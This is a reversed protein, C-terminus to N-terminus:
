LVELWLLGKIVDNNVIGWYILGVWFVIWNVVMLLVFRDIGVFSVIYIKLVFILVFVNRENVCYYLNCCM